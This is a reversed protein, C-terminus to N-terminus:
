LARKGRPTKTDQHNFLKESPSESIQKISARRGQGQWAARLTLAFFLLLAVANLLGGLRRVEFMGILDGAIRLALSVHLLALHAYFERSFAIPVGLV